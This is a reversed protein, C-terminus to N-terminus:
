YCKVKKDVSLRDLVMEITYLNFAKYYCIRLFCFYYCFIHYRFIGIVQVSVFYWLYLSLRVNSFSNRYIKSFSFIQKTIILYLVASSKAEVEVLRVLSLDMTTLFCIASVRWAILQQSRAIPWFQIKFSQYPNNLRCTFLLTLWISLAVYISSVKRLLDIATQIVKQWTKMEKAHLQEQIQLLRLWEEASKPSNRSVYSTLLKLSNELIQEGWFSLSTVLTTTM